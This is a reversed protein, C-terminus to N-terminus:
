LGNEYVEKLKKADQLHRKDPNSPHLWWVMIEYVTKGKENAIARSQCLDGWTFLKAFLEGGFTAPVPLAKWCDLSIAETDVTPDPSKSEPFEDEKEKLPQLDTTTNSEKRKTDPLKPEPYETKEKYLDPDIEDTPINFFKLLFYREAYTLASGLSQEIQQKQGIARWAITVREEPMDANVWCYELELIVVVDKAVVQPFSMEKIQPILLLNLEDIKQRVAGIILSGSAYKCNHGKKDKQLYPITKRVEVLKQYINM